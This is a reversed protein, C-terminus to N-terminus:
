MVCSILFFKDNHRNVWQFLNWSLLVLEISYAVRTCLMYSSLNAVKEFTPFSVWTPFSSGCLKRLEDQQISNLLRIAAIKQIRKRSRHLMCYHLGTMLGVGVVFGFVLGVFVM